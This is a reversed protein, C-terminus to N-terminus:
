SSVLAPTKAVSTNTEAITTRLQQLLQLQQVVWARREKRDETTKKLTAQTATLSEARSRTLEEARKLFHDRLQRNIYRLRDRSEKSASFSVEEVYRRTTQKAAMRRQTILRQRDDKQAKRGLVTGVGLVLMAAPAFGALSAFASLMVMGGSAGRLGALMNGSRGVRELSDPRDGLLTPDSSPASGLEIREAIDQSDDDFHGAVLQALQITRHHTMTYNDIVAAAMNGTLWGEFEDWAKAPDQADILREAETQLTRVRQRLDFEIDAVLDAMGDNLTQQWRAAQSRLQEAAAKADELRRVLHSSAAPDDLASLESRLQSELHGALEILDGRLRALKREDSARVKDKLLNVLDGYGSELNLERDNHDIAHNRLAASTTLVPIEVAGGRRALHGLNIDRIKRWAPYFDIKTMVLTADPCISTVTGMFDLEAATLEQSADSIFLVADAGPLAAITAATHISRLGGTGPTDVLKLGDQLLRRPLGVHVGVLREADPHEEPRCVHDALEEFDISRSILSGESPGRLILEATPEDAYHIETPKATAVDDDVPCIPANILANILSSKGQKFEGVVMVTCTLDGISARLAALRYDLDPREAVALISVMKDTADMLEARRGGAPAPSAAPRAPREPPKPRENM